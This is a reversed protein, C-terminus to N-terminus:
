PRRLIVGHFSPSTIFVFDVEFKTKNAFKSAIKRKAPQALKLGVLESSFSCASRSCCRLSRSHNLVGDPANTFDNAGNRWNTVHKFLYSRTLAVECVQKASFLLWM